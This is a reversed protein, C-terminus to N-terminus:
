NEPPLNQQGLPLILRTSVGRGPISKVALRGGAREVKARMLRTALGGDRSIPQGEVWHQALGDDDISVTYRDKEPWYSIEAVTAQGYKRAWALTGKLVYLIVALAQPDLRRDTERRGLRLTLGLEAECERLTAAVARNLEPRSLDLPRLLSILDQLEGSARRAQGEITDLEQAAQGPDETIMTQILDLQSALAAITQSPGEDLAQRLLRREDEEATLHATPVLELEQQLQFDHLAMAVQDAIAELLEKEDLALALTERTALLVLGYLGHATCLPACIVQQRDKLWGQGSLAPDQDPQQSIQLEAQALTRGTLGGHRELPAGEELGAVGSTAAATLHDDALLFIVNTQDGVPVGFDYLVLQYIDLTIDFLGKLDRASAIAAALAKLANAQNHAMELAHDDQNAAQAILDAAKRQQRVVIVLALLAGALLFASAILLEPLWLAMSEGWFLGIVLAFVAAQLALLGVFLLVITSRMRRSSRALVESVSKKVM